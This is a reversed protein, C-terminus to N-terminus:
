LAVIIQEHHWRVCVCMCMCRSAAQSYLCTPHTALAQHTEKYQARKQWLGCWLDDEHLLELLDALSDAAEEALTSVPTLAIFDFDHPNQHSSKSSRASVPYTIELSKDKYMDELMLAARQWLNHNKGLYRLLVPRIQITPQCLSVAEMFTGIASPHCEIQKVHSGSCLFPVIERGLLTMQSDNLVKWIRPFMAIWVDHALQADSHCIQSMSQLLQGTTTKKIDDFFKAEKNLMSVIRKAVDTATRPLKVSTIVDNSDGAHPLFEIDQEEPLNSSSDVVSPPIDSTLISLISPSADIESMNYQGLDASTQFGPLGANSSGHKIPADDQAIVLIFEICQEIWYHHGITEWNQACVVYMLREYLKPKVSQNFVQFFKARINPQVFRLGLMFATELKTTLDTTKLEDDRYVYNILELFQAILDLEHTDRKEINYMLKILLLTKERLNPGQVQSPSPGQKHKVWDEVIKTIAKSVKLDSTREILNALIHQIFTKRMDQNMSSIRNKVLDLSLILLESGMASVEGTPTLHEKTMKQLVRIFTLMLRDIYCPNNTCAAKLIMLTSFLISPPAQLTTEYNNLGQLIIDHVSTYLNELREYQSPTPSTSSQPPFVSMLRQLLSSGSRIVKSTSCSHSICAIIGRQLDESSFINLLTERSLTNSLFSLLELATCINGINPPPSPQATTQPRDLPTIRRVM